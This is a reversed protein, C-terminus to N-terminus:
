SRLAPATIISSLVDLAHANPEGGGAEREILQAVLHKLERPLPETLMPVYDVHLLHGIAARAERMRIRQERSSALMSKSMANERIL